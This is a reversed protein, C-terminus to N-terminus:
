KLFLWKKPLTPLVLRTNLQPTPCPVHWSVKYVEHLLCLQQSHMGWLEPHSTGAMNWLKNSTCTWETSWLSHLNSLFVQADERYFTHGSWQTQIFGFLFTPLYSSWPTMNTINRQKCCLPLAWWNGVGCQSIVTYTNNRSIGQVNWNVELRRTATKPTRQLPVPHESSPGHAHNVNQKVEPLCGTNKPSPGEGKSVRVWM